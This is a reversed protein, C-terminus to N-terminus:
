PHNIANCYKCYTNSNGNDNTKAPNNNAALKKKLFYMAGIAVVLILLIIIVYRTYSMEQKSPSTEIQNEEM